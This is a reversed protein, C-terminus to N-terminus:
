RVVEVWGQYRQTSGPVTLLYYYLGPGLGAADWTNTYQGQTYVARGWRDYVALTCIGPAIGNVVLRDNLGDGNPTIINPISLLCNSGVYLQVAGTASCGAPTTVTVSYVGPLSTLLQAGTSGDKWRYTSGPIASTADLTAIETCGLQRNPGLNVTPTPEAAIRISDRVPCSQPSAIDVWYIGPKSTALTTGTSGDLWRYTTGGPLAPVVSLTTYTNQCLPQSSVLHTPPPPSLVRVTRSYSSLQGSNPDRVTMTATYTGASAYRHTATLGTATNAAGAAPEGFNWSVSSGSVAPYISATFYTTEGLCADTNSVTFFPQNPPRVLINPLGLNTHGQGTACLAISPRYDCAPGVQDPANIVGLYQEGSQAVYIRGDPGLQLAWHTSPLITQQGGLLDYQMLPYGSVYLVNSSPSFEVGYPYYGGYALQRAGTVTGSVNDFDFLQVLGNGYQVTALRQGNPSVKMQGLANYDQRSNFGGQAVVGAASVVPPAVFGAPTLLFCCFANSNWAHVIVWIDRQNAHRVLQLKETLRGDGVPVPLPVAKSTVEGLGGQRSMDVVSYRLGNQLNNEAGDLTFIYCLTSSGPQAVAAVGQTVSSPPQESPGAYSGLGTGNTLPLHLKNWASIGNTYFLLNGQADSLSACGEGTLMQSGALLQPAAGNGPFQLSAYAGFYWRNYEQQAAAPRAPALLAVVAALRWLWALFASSHQNRM